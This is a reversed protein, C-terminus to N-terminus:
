GSLADFILNAGPIELPTPSAYSWKVEGDEVHVLSRNGHDVAEIRAGYARSVKGKPNFDALLPMTLNLKERFARHCPAMTVDLSETENQPGAQVEAEVEAAWAPRTAELLWGGVEAASSDPLDLVEMMGRGPSKKWTKKSYKVWRKAAKKSERTPLYEGHSESRLTLWYSRGDSLLHEQNTPDRDPHLADFLIAPKMLASIQENM